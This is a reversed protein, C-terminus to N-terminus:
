RSQTKIFSSSSSKTQLTSANLPFSLNFSSYDHSSSKYTNCIRIASKLIDDFTEILEYDM